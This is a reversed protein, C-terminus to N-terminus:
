TMQDPQFQHEVSMFDTSELYYNIVILHYNVLSKQEHRSPVLV